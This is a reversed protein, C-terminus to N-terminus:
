GVKLILDNPLRADTNLVLQYVREAFEQQFLNEVSYRAGHHTFDTHDLEGVPPTLSPVYGTYTTTSDTVQGVTMSASWVAPWCRGDDAYLGECEPTAESVREPELPGVVTDPFVEASDGRFARRRWRIPVHAVTGAWQWVARCRGCHQGSGGGGCHAGSRIRRAGRVDLAPHREGKWDLGPHSPM